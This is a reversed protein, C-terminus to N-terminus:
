VAPRRVTVIEPRGEPRTLDYVVGPGVPEAECIATTAGRQWLDEAVQLVRDRSCEGAYVVRDVYPPDLVAIWGALDGAPIAEAIDGHVIQVGPRWLWRALREIRDAFAAVDMPGRTGRFQAAPATADMRWWRRAPDWRLPSNNGVRAQLWLVQAARESPDDSPPLCRLREWLVRPPEAQWARLHRVVAASQTPTALETWAWGLPGAEAGRVIQPVQLLPWGALDLIRGALKRKGGMYGWGPEARGRSLAHLAISGSGWFLDLLAHPRCIM